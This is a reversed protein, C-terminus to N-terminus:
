GQSHDPDVMPNQCEILRDLAGETSTRLRELMMSEAATIREPCLSNPFEISVCRTESAQPRAKAQPPLLRNAGRPIGPVCVM